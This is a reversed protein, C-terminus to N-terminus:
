ISWLRQALKLFHWWWSKPLKKIMGPSVQWCSLIMNELDELAYDDIYISDAVIMQPFLYAYNQAVSGIGVAPWEAEVARPTGSRHFLTFDRGMSEEQYGQLVLAEKLGYPQLFQEAVLVDDIGVLNFRDLSYSVFGKELSENIGSVM